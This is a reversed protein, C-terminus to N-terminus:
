FYGKNELLILPKRKINWCKLFYELKAHLIDINARATYQYKTQVKKGGGM